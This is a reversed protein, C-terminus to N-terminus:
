TGSWRSSAEALRDLLQYTRDGDSSTALLIEQVGQEAYRELSREDGRGGYAKIQLSSPDRGSAEAAARLDRVKVAIDTTGVIPMWGDCYEIVHKWTVPGGGGGLIIPPHPLQVPKPWAWSPSFNVFEGHFEAIDETWLRKMALIKERVVARRRAPDVGHNEAEETNWGIGVGVTVRGNSLLDLTAIEKALIIPDRQAVLCVGTGLRISQTATAAAALSLLPDLLRRYEDPLEPGGPWQDRGSTPIHSHEALYLSSFGRAEVETALRTPNISRETLLTM